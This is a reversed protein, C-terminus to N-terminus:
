RGGREKNADFARQRQIIGIAQTRSIHGSRTKEAILEEEESAEKEAKKREEIQVRLGANNAELLRAAQSQNQLRVNLDANSNQLTAVAALVEEDSSDDALGLLSKLKKM